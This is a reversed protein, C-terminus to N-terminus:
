LAAGGMRSFTNVNEARHALIHKRDNKPKPRSCLRESTGADPRDKKTRIRPYAMWLGLEALRLCTPRMGNYDAQETLDVQGDAVIQLLRPLEQAAQHLATAWSLSAQELSEPAIRDGWLGVAAYKCGLYERLLWDAGLADCIGIATEESPLAKGAEYAYWSDVSIGALEAAQEQTLGQAQRESKLLLGYDKM